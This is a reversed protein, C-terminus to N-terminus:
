EPAEWKECAIQIEHAMKLFDLKQQGPRSNRGYRAIRKSVAKLCDEVSWAEIQDDPADGYQPITYAEIHLEVEKAFDKFRTGRISM